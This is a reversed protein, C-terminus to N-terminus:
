PLREGIDTGWIAYQEIYGVKDGIQIRCWQGDCRSIRGVVGPAVQWLLRSASAPQEHIERVGGIVVGTRRAALLTALMWGNSGDQEQVRRWAGSVQIVRLPLDRRHYVWIAPYGRDPGTRMMAEGAAISAWYPLPREQAAAPLAILAGFIIAIIRRM